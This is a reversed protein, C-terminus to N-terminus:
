RWMSTFCPTALLTESLKKKVSQLCNRSRLWYHCVRQTPVSEGCKLIRFSKKGTGRFSFVRSMSEDLILRGSHEPKELTAYGFTFTDIRTRLGDCRGNTDDGRRESLKSIETLLVYFRLTKGAGGFTLCSSM